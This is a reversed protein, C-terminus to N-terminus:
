ARSHLHKCLARRARGVHTSLAAHSSSRSSRPVIDLRESIDEGLIHRESGCGCTVDPAIVEEIRPLHKPLVSRGARSKSAAANPLDIAEDEAHVAVM